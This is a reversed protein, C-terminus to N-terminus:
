DSLERDEGHVWSPISRSADALETMTVINKLRGRTFFPRFFFLRKPLVAWIADIAFENSQQVTYDALKSVDHKQFLKEFAGYTPNVDYNKGGIKVTFAM